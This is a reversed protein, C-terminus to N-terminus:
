TSPLNELVSTPNCRAGGLLWVRECLLLFRADLTDSHWPHIEFLNAIRVYRLNATITLVCKYRVESLNRAGYPTPCTEASRSGGLSPQLSAVTLMAAYGHIEIQM